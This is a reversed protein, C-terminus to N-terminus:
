DVEDEKVWGEMVPSTKSGQREKSEFAEEITNFNKSQWCEDVLDGNHYYMLYFYVKKM